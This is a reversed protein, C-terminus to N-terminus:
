DSPGAATAMAPSIERQPLRSKSRSLRQSLRHFPKECVLYFGYAPVVALAVFVLAVLFNSQRRGFEHIWVASCVRFFPFHVLYLSYSLTGLFVAARTVPAPLRNPVKPNSFGWLILLFYFAAWSLEQYGIFWDRLTATAAVALLAAGLFNFEPRWKPISGLRVWEAIAAGGCWVIWYMGANGVQGTVLCRQHISPTLLIIVLAAVSVFAVTRMAKGIGYRRLLWLFLPYLIYLEVEVPVSWLSPNSRVQGPQGTYNQLM